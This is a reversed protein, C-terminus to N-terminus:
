GERRTSRTTIEATQSLYLAMAMNYCGICFRLTRYLTSTALIVVSRRGSVFTWNLSTGYRCLHNQFFRVDPGRKAPCVVLIRLIQYRLKGVPFAVLWSSLESLDAPAWPFGVFYTMPIPGEAVEVRCGYEFGYRRYYFEELEFSGVWRGIEALM